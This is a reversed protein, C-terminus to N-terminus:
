KKGMDRSTGVPIEHVNRGGSVIEQGVFRKHEIDWVQLTDDAFSLTYILMALSDRDKIYYIWQESPVTRTVIYVNPLGWSAFVERTNMGRVIEGNKICDNYPGDPHLKIYDERSAAPILNAREITSVCSCGYSTMLLAAAFCILVFRMPLLRRAIRIPIRQTDFQSKYGPSFFAAFGRSTANSKEAKPCGPM